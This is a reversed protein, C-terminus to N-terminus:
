ARNIGQGDPTFLFLLGLFCFWERNDPGQDFGPKFGVQLVAAAVEAPRLFVTDQHRLVVGARCLAKALKESEGSTAAAGSCAVPYLTRLPPMSREPHLSVSRLIYSRSEFQMNSRLVQEECKLAQFIVHYQVIGGRERRRVLLSVWGLNTSPLPLVAYTLLPLATSRQLYRYSPLRSHLLYPCACSVAKHCMVSTPMTLNYRKRISNM